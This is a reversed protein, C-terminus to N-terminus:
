ESCDAARRTADEYTVFKNGFGWPACADVEVDGSFGECSCYDWYPTSAPRTLDGSIAARRARYWDLTMLPRGSFAFARRDLSEWAGRNIRVAPLRFRVSLPTEDATVYVIRFFSRIKAALANLQAGRAQVDRSQARSLRVAPNPRTWDRTLEGRLMQSQPGDDIAITLTPKDGVAGSASMAIWIPFLSYALRTMQSIENKSKV